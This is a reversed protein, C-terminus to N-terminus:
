STWRSLRSVCRLLSRWDRQHLDQGHCAAGMARPAYRARPGRYPAVTRCRRRSAALVSRLGLLSYPAFGWEACRTAALRGGVSEHRCLRELRPLGLWRLPELGRQYAVEGLQACRRSGRSGRPEAGAALPYPAFGWDACRIAALRGGVLTAWLRPVAVRQHPPHLTRGPRDGARQRCRGFAAAAEVTCASVARDKAMSQALGLGQWGQWARGVRGSADSRM